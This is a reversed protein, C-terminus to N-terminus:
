AIEEPGFPIKEQAEQFVGIQQLVVGKSVEQQRNEMKRFFQRLALVQAMQGGSVPFVQQRIELPGIDGQNGFPQIIHLV